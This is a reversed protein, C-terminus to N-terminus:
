IKQYIFISLNLGRVKVQNESLLQWSQNFAFTNRLLNKANTIFVAKGGSKLWRIGKDALFRYLEINKERSGTHIGYPLNSIIKTFYGDPFKKDKIDGHKLEIAVNATEINQRACDLARPDIDVGVCICPKLLQREILLTGSGCCPDLIRDKKDLGALFNMVYAIAPNLSSKLTCKRYSREFTGEIILQDINM